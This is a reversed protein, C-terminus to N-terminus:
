LKKEFAIRAERVDKFDDPKLVLGGPFHVEWHPHMELNEKLCEVIWDENAQVVREGTNRNRIELIM